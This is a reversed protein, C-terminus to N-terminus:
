EYAKAAQRDISAKLQKVRRPSYVDWMDDVFCCAHFGNEHMCVKYAGNPQEEMTMNEIM